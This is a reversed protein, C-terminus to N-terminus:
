FNFQIRTYYTRGLRLVTDNNSFLQKNDLGEENLLNDIGFQVNMLEFFTKEISMNLQLNDSVFNDYKDIIGRSNNTDFLAYESRYIGRINASFDYEFNEYFVKFNGTHKSRNALGYYNSLTLQESPSTPTRRFFVEGKKILAEEEKNGTDLFQYGGLLKINNNLRYNFEVEIGQTYVEAINRYSFTRTGNNLDLDSPNLQTDFTDILDTFDNRFLNINVGLNSLPKLQFGFNYGISSEPKLEKQVRDIGAVNPYLEHITQTGLVVYGGNTNRFNFFLQRFDPVKFGKGVSAKATIWNNFKYNASLKPSFASQYKNSTDYRFGVVINMKDIPNFDYQGFIYHAEFNKRGNFFSRELADYNGGVGAIINSNEFNYKAKIEPRYLSRDFLSTEGNFISETKYETAYFQYDLEWKSSIEHRVKANINFDTVENKNEGVFINQTFLRNSIEATIKDSFDYSLKLNGTFNQHPNTTKNTPEEPSLDFGGSSNLNIGAIIGFKNKKSVINTNIDLENRAGGRTLVHFAGKFQGEKPQETIINIVGGMAESGYLSSSPGKVIEIQKINNVTLRSLDINGSVRGVLPVGDIMILTYDAAIGQMQVGESGGFDSVMVIGTQELIIDRLRVSGSKQIQEKSVLTVPMPLSSLQRKTRTATVVVEDLNNEKISDKIIEVKEQSFVAISMLGLGLKLVRNLFM